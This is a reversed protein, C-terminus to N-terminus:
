SVWSFVDFDNFIIIVFTLILLDFCSLEHPFVQLEGLVEVGVQLTEEGLHRGCTGEVAGTEALDDVRERVEVLALEVERGELVSLEVFVWLFLLAAEKM